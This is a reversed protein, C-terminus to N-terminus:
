SLTGLEPDALAARIEANTQLFALQSHCAEYSVTVNVDGLVAFYPEFVAVFARHAVRLDAACELVIWNPLELYQSHLEGSWSQWCRGELAKLAAGTAARIAILDDIDAAM